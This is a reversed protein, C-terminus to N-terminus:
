VEGAPSPPTPSFGPQDRPSCSLGGFELRNTSQVLDRRRLLFLLENGSGAAQLPVQEGHLLHATPWVRVPSHARRETQRPGEGPVELPRRAQQSQQVHEELM